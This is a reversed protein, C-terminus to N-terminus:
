KLGRFAGKRASTARALNRLAAALAKRPNKGTACRERTKFSARDGIRVCATFAEKDGQYNREISVVSALRRKSGEKRRTKTKVRGM